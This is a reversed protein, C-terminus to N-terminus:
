DDDEDDDNFNTVIIKDRDPELEFALASVLAALAGYIKKSGGDITSFSTDYSSNLRVNVFDSDMDFALKHLNPYDIVHPKRGSFVIKKDTIVFGHKGSSFIGTNVYFIVNDEPTIQGKIAKNIFAEMKEEKKGKYYVGAEVLERKIYKIIAESTGLENTCYAFAKMAEKSDKGKLLKKYEVRYDFWETKKFGDEVDAKKKTLPEEEVQKVEEESGEVEFETGCYPCRMIDPNDTNELKGNCNPCKLMEVIKKM